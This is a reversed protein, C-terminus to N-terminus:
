SRVPESFSVQLNRSGICGLVMLAMASIRIFQNRDQEPIHALDGLVAQAAAGLLPVAAKVISDFREDLEAMQMASDLRNM